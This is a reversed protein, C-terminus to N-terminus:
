FDFQSTFGAQSINQVSPFSVVTLPVIRVEESITELFEKRHEESLKNLSENSLKKQIDNRSERISEETFEDSYLNISWYSM